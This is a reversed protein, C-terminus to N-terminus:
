LRNRQYIIMDYKAFGCYQNTGCRLRTVNSGTPASSNSQIGGTLNTWQNGNWYAPANNGATSITMSIRPLAVNSLDVTFSQIIVTQGLIISITSKDIKSSSPLADIQEAPEASNTASPSCLEATPDFVRVLSQPGNSTPGHNYPSAPFSKHDTSQNWLYTIGNVCLRGGNPGSITQAVDGGFRAGNLDTMIQQGANNIQSLAISKNYIGVMTMIIAVIFVVIFALFTIALSLELLTYGREKDRRMYNIM